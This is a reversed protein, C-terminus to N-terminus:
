KTEGKFSKSYLIIDEQSYAELLEIYPQDLKENSLPAEWSRYLMRYKGSVKVNYTYEEVLTGDAFFTATYGEVV